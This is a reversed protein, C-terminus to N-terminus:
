PEGEPTHTPGTDAAWDDAPVEDVNTLGLRGDTPEMVELGDTDAREREVDFHGSQPQRLSTTGGLSTPDGTAQAFGSGKETPGAQNEDIDHRDGRKMDSENPAM